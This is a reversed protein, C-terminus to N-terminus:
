KEKNPIITVIVYRGRAIFEGAADRLDSSSIEDISDLYSRRSKNTNLLSHFVLSSAIDLGKERAQHSKFKIQSKASELFDFAYFQSEGFYDKKSYNLRRTERLFDTAKRKVVGINKPDLTIYILIAGGYKFASYGSSITYVLNPRERLTQSLMPNIGRGLVEILVDASYQDTHNYDPGIMGIVLYALNVDMEKEIEVSKRLHPIMEFEAPIAQGKEIDGFTERIKAEVEEVDIDGVIAMICNNTVFYERYFKELQEATAAEIIEKKGPIPRHYPHNNFLNQYALSTAYQLPNDQLRNLEELIIQKEEDLKEQTIKLNFLIDRQNELAFNIHESPLTLEFLAIDYGTHANIYAGHQRIDQIIERGSRLKTGRFLIYHELIHVLGNTEESEDKSGVNFGIALNVLPLTQKEVLFVKLGNDLVFYKSKAKEQSYLSNLFALACLLSIVTFKHKIFICPKMTKKNHCM